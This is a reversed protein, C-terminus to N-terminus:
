CLDDGISALEVFGLHVKGNVILNTLITSVSM